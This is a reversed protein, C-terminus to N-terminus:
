FLERLHDVRVDKIKKKRVGAKRNKEDMAARGSPVLKKSICSCEVDWSKHCVSEKM